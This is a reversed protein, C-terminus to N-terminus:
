GRRGGGGGGMVKRLADGGMGLMGAFGGGGGKNPGGGGPGRKGGKQDGGKGGQPPPLGMAMAIAGEDGAAIAAKLTEITDAKAKSIDSQEKKKKEHTTNAVKIKEDLVQMLASSHALWNEVTTMMDQVETPGLDRGMVWQVEFAKKRQDLKGQLLNAYVCDIILDELQRVTDLELDKQLKEYVLFKTKSAAEVISLMKLKTAAKPDLKDKLKLEKEKAKFEQFSGYAFIRLLELYSKLQPNQALDKVSQVNLIEGFVFVQPHKIANVIVYTLGDAKTGEALVRFNELPDVKTSQEAASAGGKEDKKSGSAM